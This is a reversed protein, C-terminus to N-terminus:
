DASSIMFTCYFANLLTVSCSLVFCVSIMRNFIPMAEEAIGIIETHDPIM